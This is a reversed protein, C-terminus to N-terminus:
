FASGAAAGEEFDAVLRGSGDIGLFYNMDRNSGDVEARGKAVLPVANVGGTGTSTAVGTGARRLWLELTFTKLGLASPNGLTVYDNVGDFRLANNGAAHMSRDRAVLLAIACVLVALRSTPRSLISRLMRPLI